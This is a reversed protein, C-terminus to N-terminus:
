TRRLTQWNGAIEAAFQLVLLVTGVLVVAWVPYLPVDLAGPATVGTRYVQVFNRWVSALFLLCFALSLVNALLLLWAQTRPRARDVLLTLRIHAQERLVWGMGLFSLAVFLWGGLDLAFAVSIGFVNRGLVQALIMVVLATMCLGALMAGLRVAGGVARDLTSNM